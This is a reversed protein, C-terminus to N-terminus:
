TASLRDASQETWFSQFTAISVDKLLGQTLGEVDGVRGGVLLGLLGLDLSAQVRGEVALNAWGLGRTAEVFAEVFAKILDPVIPLVIGAPLGLQRSCTVLSQLAQV